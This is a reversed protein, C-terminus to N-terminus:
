EFRQNYLKFAKKGHKAAKILTVVEAVLFGTTIGTFVYAATESHHQYIFQAQGNIIASSVGNYKSNNKFEILAAFGSATVGGLSIFSWRLNNKAAKYEMASPQYSLLKMRIDDPSQLKGNITYLYGDHRGESFPIIKILSDPQPHRKVTDQAKILFSSLLLLLTIIIPKKM